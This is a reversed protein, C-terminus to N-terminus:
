FVPGTASRQAAAAAQVARTHQAAAAEDVTM